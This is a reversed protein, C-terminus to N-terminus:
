LDLEKIEIDLMDLNGDFIEEEIAQVLGYNRVHWYLYSYDCNRCSVNYLWRKNTEDHNEMLCDSYDLVHKGFYETGACLDPNRKKKQKAMAGIYPISGYVM